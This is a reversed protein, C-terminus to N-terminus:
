KDRRLLKYIERALKKAEERTIKWECNGISLWLRKRKLDRKRSEKKVLSIRIM